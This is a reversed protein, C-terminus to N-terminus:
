IKDAGKKISSDIAKENAEELRNVVNPKFIVLDLTYYSGTSNVRMEIMKSGIIWRGCVKYYGKDITAWSPLPIDLKGAGYKTTLLKKLADFQDPMKINYDDYEIYDGKLEVHYLSDSDFAGGVSGFNYEGVKHAKIDSNEWKKYASEEMFSDRAKEFKKPSINFMIGSIAKEQDKITFSDIPTSENKISDVRSETGSGNDGMSCSVVVSMLIAAMIKLM